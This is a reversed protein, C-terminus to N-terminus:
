ACCGGGCCGGGSPPADVSRAGTLAGAVSLLRVTDAHGAPCTSAASSQAMPRQETYTDGCTRCRYEYMPM